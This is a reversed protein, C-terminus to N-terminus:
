RGLGSIDVSVVDMSMGRGRGGGGEVRCTDCAVEDVLGGEGGCMHHAEEHHV